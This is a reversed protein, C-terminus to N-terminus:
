DRKFLLDRLPDSEITFGIVRNQADRRFVIMPLAAARTIFHDKEDPALRAENPGPGTIVLAEGRAEVRFRVNLEDNFYTGAYEKLEEATPKVLVVKPAITETGGQKWVLQHIKGDKAIPFAIRAAALDLSFETESLASLAFKQGPFQFFLQGDTRTFTLIQGLGLRYNGVYQDLKQPNVSVSKAPKAAAPPGTKATLAAPPAAAPLYIDIIDQAFGEVSTYDWNALVAFGFKQDPYYVIQAGSGAWAGTKVARRRGLESEVSWGWAFGSSSGDILRGPTFTRDDIARGGDSATEAAVLWKALDAISTFLSHSGALSLTDIGKLYEQRTFNYTFAQDDLISRYNDRFQTRTMKLPKFVNEWTWDSFPRGAARKITEALLDYNTNSYLSRTGPAFLLKKQAQVIKLVKGFDIEEGDRGALRLVPLWDRLGSSHFLLHRLTVPTGFDPLEPIRKRVDDDLSLRGQKEFLALAQGVFIQSADGINFVTNPTIPVTHEQCALGFTKQYLVRGEKVVVVAFGPQDLRNWFDFLRDMRGIPTAPEDKKAAEQGPVLFSGAIFLMGILWGIKKM